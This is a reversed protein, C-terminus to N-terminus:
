YGDLFDKTGVRDASRNLNHGLPTDRASFFSAKKNATSNKGISSGDILARTDWLGAATMLRPM